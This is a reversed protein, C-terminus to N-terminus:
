RVHHLEVQIVRGGIRLRDRPELPVTAGSEIKNWVEAQGHRSIYTGNSSGLDQVAVSWGALVIRAHKRSLSLSDDTLIMPTATGAIVDDHSTPERGIVLDQNLSYTTGDDVVLVGLPPRPGIILVATHHVGMKTGCQSCYIAEPHNHHGQSCNIGLVMESGVLALAPSAEPAPADITEPSAEVVPVPEAAAASSLVAGGVAVEVWGADITGAELEVNALAGSALDEVHLRITALSENIGAGLAHVLVQDNIPRIALRTSPSTLEIRAAGSAVVYLDAGATFLMAFVAPRNTKAIAVVQDILDSENQKDKILEIIGHGDVSTLVVFGAATRHALGGAGASRAQATYLDAKM